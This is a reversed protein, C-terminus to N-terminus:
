KLLVMKKIVKNNEATMSYFYVGSSVSYGNIDVGDWIIEHQGSELKTNILDIVKQGKINYISLQVHSENPISFSITTTPNFPNPYNNYLVPIEPIVTGQDEEPQQGDRIIGLLLDRKKEFEIWSTPKLGSITGINESRYGLDEMILYTYGADIVAFISDIQAPPNEIINEFYEIAAEFEYMYLNCFNALDEALNILDPYSQITSDALFYNQLEEYDNNVLKELDLLKKMSGKAFETEPYLEVISFMMQQAEYFNDSEIYSRALEYLVDAEDNDRLFRHTWVPLWDYDSDDPYLYGSPSNTRGWYNDEINHTGTTHNTCNIHYDDSDLIDNNTIKTPFSNHTVQIGEENYRIRQYPSTQDGVIYIDSNNSGYIGYENNHIYNLGIIDISSDYLYIATGGDNGYIENDEFKHKKGSGTEYLYVCTRAESDFYSNTIEYNPFSNMYIVSQTIDQYFDCSHLAGKTWVIKPKTYTLM